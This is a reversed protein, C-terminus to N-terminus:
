VTEENQPKNEGENGTENLQRMGRSGEANEIGGIEIVRRQNLLYTRFGDVDELESKNQTYTYAVGFHLLYLEFTLDTEEFFMIAEMWNIELREWDAKNKIRIIM